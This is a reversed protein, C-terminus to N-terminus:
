LSPAYYEQRYLMKAKSANAHAALKIELSHLEGDRQRHTSTYDLRYGGDIDQVARAAADELSRAEYVSGGTIASITDLNRRATRDGTGSNVGDILPTNLLLLKKQLSALTMNSTNDGGDSLLVIVRRYSAKQADFQQLVADIGDFMATSAKVPAVSQLKASVLGKDTTFPQELWTQWAFSVLAVEDDPKLGSVIREAAAILAAHQDKLSNSVDVMLCVSAARDEPVLMADPQPVGDELVQASIPMGPLVKVLLHVDESIRPWAELPTQPWARLPAAPFWLIVALVIV